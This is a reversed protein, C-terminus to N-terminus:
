KAEVPQPTEVSKAAMAKEKEIQKKTVKENFKEIWIMFAPTLVIMALCNFFSNMTKARNVLPNHPDKLLDYFEKLAPSGKAKEFADSIIKAVEKDSGQLTRIDQGVIKNSIAMVNKDHCLLKKINGGHKRVFVFFDSVGGAYNELDSYKTTLESSSLLSIDTDLPNIHHWARKIINKEHKCRGPIDTLAFGTIKTFMRSIVTSLGHALFLIASISLFDRTLIERKDYKDKAQCYRSGIIVGYLLLAVGYISMNFKNYEFKDSIRKLLSSEPKVLRKGLDAVGTFSPQVYQSNLNNSVRKLQM